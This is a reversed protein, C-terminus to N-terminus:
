EGRITFLGSASVDGAEVRFTTQNVKSNSVDVAYQGPPLHYTDFDMSWLNVGGSGPVVVATGAVGAFMAGQSMDDPNVVFDYGRSVMPTIEVMFEYGAPISTTGTLIVRSDVRLDPLTDITIFGSSPPTEGPGPDSLVLKTSSESFMGETTEGAFQLQYCGPSMGSSNFDFRWRNIGVTGTTVATSGTLLPTRGTVLTGTGNGSCQAPYVDWFISTGPPLNTIGNVGIRDGWAQTGITNATIFPAPLGRDGANPASGITFQVAAIVPGPDVTGNNGTFTVGSVRIVYDGPPLGSVNVAAKWSNRGGTGPLVSVIATAPAIDPRSAQGPGSTINVLLHTNLGLNTTGTLVLIGNGDIDRDSFPDIAISPMFYFSDTLLIGLGMVVLITASIIGAFLLVTRDM